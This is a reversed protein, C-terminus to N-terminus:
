DCPPGGCLIFPKKEARMSEALKMDDANSLDWPEGSSKRTMLDISFGPRLGVNCVQAAIRPPPYVESVDKRTRGLSFLVNVLEDCEQCNLDWGRKQFHEAFEQHLASIDM